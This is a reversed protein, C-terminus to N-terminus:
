RSLVDAVVNAKGPHYDITCDFDKILELLRRQRLNLEKQTGLYKLSKHDTFIHCKEGFLYHRWIKLAFVIAAIELDHTPYNLEHPKLKQSAYSIFKGEQMLVCGLGNHSADSYVVYEKGEWIFKVEKHLLKTWPSAIISFGKLFRINYGALGLLSRVETPSKSPRWEVVTQIKSPDVKVRETSVKLKDFLDDIRPLIYRNKITIRNFQTYNPRIFGKELLEKLQSKLERLEAPAM